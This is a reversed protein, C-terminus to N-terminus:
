YNISMVCSFQLYNRKELSTISDTASRSPPHRTAAVNVNMVLSPQKSVRVYDCKGYYSSSCLNRHDLQEQYSKFTDSTAVRAVILAELKGDWYAKLDAEIFM